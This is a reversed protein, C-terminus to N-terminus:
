ILFVIDELSIIPCDVKGTLDKEIEDFAFMATVVVVDIGELGDELDVVNMDADLCAIESDLCYLVKIDSGELDKLLLNGVEGMGYIAINKYGIEMFYSDIGKGEHKLILWQNLVEYYIKFKDVRKGNQLIIKNAISSSAAIAVGGGLVAGIVSSLFGITSKKM